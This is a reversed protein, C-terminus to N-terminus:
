GRGLPLKLAARYYYFFAAIARGFGSLGPSATDGKAELLGNDELDRLRDDFAKESQMRTLIEARTLGGSGNHRDLLRVLVVTPSETQAVPYALVYTASLTIVFLYVITASERPGSLGMGLAYFVSPAILFIVFLWLIQKRVKWLRWAAVHIVLLVAFAAICYGLLQFTFVTDHSESPVATQEV